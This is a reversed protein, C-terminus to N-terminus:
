QNIRKPPQDSQFIFVGFGQLSNPAGNGCNSSPIRSVSRSSRMLFENADILRRSPNRPKGRLFFAKQSFGLVDRIIRGIDSSMLLKKDCTSGKRPRGGTSISRSADVACSFFCAFPSVTKVSPSSAALTQTRKLPRRSIKLYVESPLGRAM